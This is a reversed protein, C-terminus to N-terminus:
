RNSINQTAITDIKQINEGINLTVMINNKLQNAIVFKVDIIYDM